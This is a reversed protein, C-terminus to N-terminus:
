MAGARRSTSKMGIVHLNKDMKIKGTHKLRWFGNRFDHQSIRGSISAYLTSVLVPKDHRKLEELIAIEAQGRDM